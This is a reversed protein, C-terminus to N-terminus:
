AQRPPDDAPRSSRDVKLASSALQSFPVDVAGTCVERARNVMRNMQADNKIAKLFARVQDVTMRPEVVTRSLLEAAYSEVDGLARIPRGKQDMMKTGDPNKLEDGTSYRDVLELYADSPGGTKGPLPEMARFRFPFTRAQMQTRIEEVRLAAARVGGDGDAISADEGAQKAARQSRALDAEAEDFEAMLAGDVCVHLVRELPRAMAIMQEITFPGGFASGLRGPPNAELNAITPILNDTM